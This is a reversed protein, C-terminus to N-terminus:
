KKKRLEQFLEEVSREIPKIYTFNKYEIIEPKKIM